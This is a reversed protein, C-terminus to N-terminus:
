RREDATLVVRELLAQAAPTINLLSSAPASQLHQVVLENVGGLGGIILARETSTPVPDPGSAGRVRRLGEVLVAAFDALGRSRRERIRDTSAVAEVVLSQTFAPNAALTALYTTLGAEVVARASQATAAAARMQQVLIDVASYTALFASEKDPYLEYFTKTSIGARAAIQRVSAGAYGREAVVRVTAVQLRAEQSSRVADRSLGHRHRPLVDPADGTLEWIRVASVRPASAVDPESM